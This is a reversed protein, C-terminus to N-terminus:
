LSVRPTDTLTNGTFGLLLFIGARCTPPVMGYDTSWIFCIPLLSLPNSSDNKRIRAEMTHEGTGWGM